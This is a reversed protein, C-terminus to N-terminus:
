RTAARKPAILTITRSAKTTGGSPQRYTMRATVALRRSRVLLKYGRATLKVRVTATRGAPISFGATGLKLQRRYLALTGVCRAGSGCRLKIAAIRTRTVTVSRTTIALTAGAVRAVTFTRAAPTADFNGAIDTARVEFAHSGLALVPTTYPSSCAAFAAADLRCEFTAPEDAAFTFTPTTDTTSGSPGSVISTVPIGTHVTFPGSLAPTPDVNGALDTARVEFSHGGDALAVTTHPSTCAAFAAGDIRCEFSADEDAAFTFTPTSDNSLAAPGSVITTVPVGTHVTFTRLAPTPDPTGPVDTARVEFTHAGDALVNTTYPSTCAAFAGGDLRCQFTAPEDASFTFTPTSDNTLASPGSDITTEPPTEITFARSAPSGDPNGAMDVARVEFTHPGDALAVTHPSACAAFAAGDVRCQFTASENASFTFTPTPDNTTGSPGSDITTQPATADVTFGRSAPTADLNGALDTARVEFTHPGDALVGTTYPSSCAAFPVSDVRCQFTSAEDASFTFTPTSDSTLGSPGSDITTQPATADVTFGRMAPTADPNGAADTARVEFSHAGDALAITTHPSTCAAFAAGDVRCQFTAPENASFTFTPTSDNTLGSPGSDVATQPATADVTFSRMAPTADLNGAADVARVEFTHAGDALAVTTHPSACVAFAAGDVRCQFSAGAESSFEFTPTSDNTSGSPGSDITTQPAATDVAFARSAPSGDVNGAADIARVEFSHAGDPLAATTYPSSCSVFAAGDVGCQFTAGAESSFGFTPTSDNTPGTPGSDITTQPAVTDVTFSRSAPTADPNGALDTARVEFTHPGDALAGTTYPSTCAAFPVSDVRCQFTSAENASFTFTPTSDNTLG